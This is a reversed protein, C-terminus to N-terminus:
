PRVRGGAREGLECGLVGGEAAHHIAAVLEGVLEVRAAHARRLEGALDRPEPEREVRVVPELLLQEARHQEARVREALDAHLAHDLLVDALM